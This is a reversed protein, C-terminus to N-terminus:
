FSKIHNKKAAFLNDALSKFRRACTSHKSHMNQPSLSAAQVVIMKNTPLRELLKLLICVIAGKCEKRLKRKKEASLSVKHLSTKAAAGIDVQMEDMKNDENNLFQENMLERLNKREDVKSQKYVLRLLRYIIYSLEDFMFPLMPADTQFMILYPSMINALFAFFHLKTPVLLDLHNEVLTEQQKQTSIIQM